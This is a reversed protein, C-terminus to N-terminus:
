RANGSPIPLPELDRTNGIGEIRRRTLYHDTEKPHSARPIPTKAIECQEQKMPGQWILLYLGGGAVAAIMIAPLVWNRMQM